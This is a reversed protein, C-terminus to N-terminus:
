EEDDLGFGIIAMLELVTNARRVKTKVEELMEQEDRPPGDEGALAEDDRWASSYAQIAECVRSKIEAFSLTEEVLEYEVPHIGFVVHFMWAIPHRPKIDRDIMGTIRWARGSADVILLGVGGGRKRDRRGLLTLPQASSLCEVRAWWGRQGPIPISLVPFKFPLSSM